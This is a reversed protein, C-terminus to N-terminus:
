LVDLIEPSIGLVGAFLEPLTLSSNWSWPFTELFKSFRKTINRFINRSSGQSTGRVKFTRESFDNSQNYNFNLSNWSVKSVNSHVKFLEFYIMLTWIKLITASKELKESFNLPVSLNWPKTPLPISNGLQLFHIWNRNEPQYIITDVVCYTDLKM